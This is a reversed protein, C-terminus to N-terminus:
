VIRFIRKRYIMFVLDVVWLVNFGLLLRALGCVWHGESFRTIAGLLWSTPIFIAAVISLPYNLDFYDKNKKYSIM